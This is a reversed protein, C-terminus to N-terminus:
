EYHEESIEKKLQRMTGLERLTLDSADEHMHPTVLRYSHHAQFSTVRLVESVESTCHIIRERCLKTFVAGECIGEIRLIVNRLTEFKKGILKAMASSVPFCLNQRPPRGLKKKAYSFQKCYISGRRLLHANSGVNREWM